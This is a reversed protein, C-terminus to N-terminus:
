SLGDPRSGKKKKIEKIWENFEKELYPDKKMSLIKELYRCTDKNGMDVVYLAISDVIDNEFSDVAECYINILDKLGGNVNLELKNLAENYQHRIDM